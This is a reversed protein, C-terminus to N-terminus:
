SPTAMPATSPATSGARINPQVGGTAVLTQAAVIPSWALALLLLPAKRM